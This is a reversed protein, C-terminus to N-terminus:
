PQCLSGLRRRAVCARQQRVEEVFRAELVRPVAEDADAAPALAGGARSVDVAATVGKARKRTSQTMLAESALAEAPRKAGAPPNEKRAGHPGAAGSGDAARKRKRGASPPPSPSAAGFSLLYGQLAKFM